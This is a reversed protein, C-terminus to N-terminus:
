SFHIGSGRGYSQLMSSVFSDYTASSTVAGVSAPSYRVTRTHFVEGNPKPHGWVDIEIVHAKLDPDVCLKAETKDFGLGALACCAMTNVNNPALPCLDRVPGDFLVSEGKQGSALLADRKEKLVGLAKLCTPDKKMCIALRGIKGRQAMKQIDQAGWLAGSPLYLGHGADSSMAASTVSTECDRDALATPSGPMYDAVKLFAAGFEKSILPHAVEVILDADKSAFDKLNELKANDPILSDEQVKSFTRNWVFALELQASVKPDTLIAKVLHKGLNGYGVIGVKRKTTTKSM